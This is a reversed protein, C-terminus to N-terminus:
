LAIEEGNTSASLYAKEILQITAISDSAPSEVTWIDHSAKRLIANIFDELPAWRKGVWQSTDYTKVSGNREQYSLSAANLNKRNRGSIDRVIRITGKTGFIKINEDLSGQPGEFSAAFNLVGGNTFLVRGAAVTEMPDRGLDTTFTRASVSQALIAGQDYHKLLWLVIDIGHYGSSILSGGGAMSKDNRWTAKGRDFHEHSILYNILVPEGIEGEGILKAAEVYVDEYRRQSMTVFVLENKGAIRVLDRCSAASITTPKDVAVHLGSELCKRVADEHLANPLSVVAADARGEEILKKWYDTNGEGCKKYSEM